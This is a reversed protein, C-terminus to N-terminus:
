FEKFDILNVWVQFMTLDVHFVRWTISNESFSAADTYKIYKMSFFANKQADTVYYCWYMSKDKFHSMIGGTPLNAIAEGRKLCERRTPIKSKLLQLLFDLIRWMDLISILYFFQPSM